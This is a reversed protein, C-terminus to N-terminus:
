KNTSNEFAEPFSFTLIANLGKDAVIVTKHKPDVALNRVETLINHAITWRPAVDGDDDISWVGLFSQAEEASQFNNTDEVTKRAAGFKRTSAIFMRTGPVMVPASPGTTGSKPGGTVIRLPKVNGSDTRNFIRLGGRGGALLLDHEPDVAIGGGSLGADPGGLIRIPAVNGQATRDFVHIVGGQEGRMPVFIENHIPDADLQDTYVLGTKLGQIVRIPAEEGNAGGRFTFVANSFSNPVIIEDHVADYFISHMSRALMTKQGEIRRVAQANGDGLRPFVAIQPHAV